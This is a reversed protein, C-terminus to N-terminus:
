LDAQEGRTHLHVRWEEGDDNTGWAEVCGDNGTVSDDAMGSLISKAGDAAGAEVYVSVIETHSVSLFIAADLAKIIREDSAHGPIEIRKNM